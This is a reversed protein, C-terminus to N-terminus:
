DLYKFKRLVVKHLKKKGDYSVKFQRPYIGKYFANEPLRLNQTKSVKSQLYKLTIMPELFIMKGGYYGYIYTRTFLKGNLEPSLSDLWHWGMKPVGGPTAIYRPALYKGPVEKMCESDQQNCAIGQQFERSVFYFHIDFHPKDYIGDPEHGHPNWDLTIFKYPKVPHSAPLSLVYEKMDHGLNQLASHTLVVGIEKVKHNSTEVYSRAHGNGVHVKEGWHVQGAIATNAILALFLLKLRM